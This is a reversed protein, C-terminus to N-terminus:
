ASGSAARVKRTLSSADIVFGKSIQERYLRLDHHESSTPYPTSSPMFLTLTAIKPALPYEPSSSTLLSAPWGNTSTPQRVDLCCAPFFAESTKPQISRWECKAPMSNASGSAPAM